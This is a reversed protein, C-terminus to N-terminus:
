DKRSELDAPGVRDIVLIMWKIMSAQQPELRPDNQLSVADCRMDPWLSYFGILDEVEKRSNESPM